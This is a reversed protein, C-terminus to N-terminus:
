NANKYRREKDYARVLWNGIFNKWGGVNPKGGRRTEAPPKKNPNECWNGMKAFEATLFDLGLGGCALSLREWWKPDDLTVGDPLQLLTQTELFNKLWLDESAWEKKAPGNNRYPM